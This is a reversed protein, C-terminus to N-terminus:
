ELRRLIDGVDEPDGAVLIVANFVRKIVKRDHGHILEINYKAHGHKLMPAASQILWDSFLRPQDLVKSYPIANLTKSM